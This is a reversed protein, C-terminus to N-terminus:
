AIRFRGARQALQSALHALERALGATKQVTANNEETGQAITEVKHSVERASTTQSTLALSIEEVVRAAREASERISIVSDGARNALQVGESVRAVGDEMERVASQTGEQIKTIMGAIEQTSASTREALKRVEDAVVAFGRGQEGARAAEIAANLALLNTQDSIERIVQVINSIQSSFSELERITNATGHVAGAILEMEQATQHIIRGGEVAQSSSTQSVSYAERANNGVLDISASLEEVATAMGAAASAQSDIAQASSAAAASLEEAQSSLVQVNSHISAILEHLNGRMASLKGMLEGIEDSGRVEIRHVLDGAAIASAAAGAEKLSRTIHRWTIVGPVAVFIGGLVFFVLLLTRSIQNREEAAEYEDKAVQAQFAMLKKLADLAVQREEHIALLFNVLVEPNNLKRAEVSETAEKLMKLWANHKAVFDDALKKEEAPHTSAMYKKWLAEFRQQNERVAAAQSSTSVDILGAAPRGPAGEFAFLLNLADERINADIQALEQMPVARDEYVSQLSSSAAGMSLWGITAAILYLVSSMLIIYAIRHSIRIKAFV